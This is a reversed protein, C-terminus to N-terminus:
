RKYVEVGDTQAPSKNSRKCQSRLSNILPVLRQQTCPNWNGVVAITVSKVDIIENYQCFLPETNTDLKCLVKTQIQQGSLHAFEIIYFIIYSKILKSFTLFIQVKTFIDHFESAM